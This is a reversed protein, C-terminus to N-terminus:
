KRKLVLYESIGAGWNETYSGLLVFGNRDFLNVVYAKSLFCAYRHPSALWKETTAEDFCRESMIDFVIYSGPGAVRWIEKFYNYSTLFPLYVFVGHAHVLDVGSSQTQNLSCGDADHAIVPYQARLWENWDNATEYIEYKSPLQKRLV